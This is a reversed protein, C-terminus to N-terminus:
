APRSATSVAKSRPVPSFAVNAWGHDTGDSANGGVADASSPTSSSSLGHGQKTGRLAHVFATVATDLEPLLCHSCRNRIPTPTSGVWSSATCTPRPAPWSSTPWWASSSRWSTAPEGGAEVTPSPWTPRQVPSRSEIRRSTCRIRRPPLDLMPASGGTCSCCCRNPTPRTRQWRRTVATAAPLARMCPRNRAVGALHIPRRSHGRGPGARGLAGHAAHARARHGAVPQVEDQRAMTGAVRPPRRRRDIGGALHGDVRLPQLQPRRVGGRARHGAGQCGLAEQFRADQRPPRLWRGSAVRDLADVALPGRATAYAPNEYPIVTNLGDNGGYLTLLVLKGRGADGM